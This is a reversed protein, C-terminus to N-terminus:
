DILEKISMHQFEAGQVIITHLRQLNFNSSFSTLVHRIKNENGPGGVRGGPRKGGESGEMDAAPFAVFYRLLEGFTSLRKKCM